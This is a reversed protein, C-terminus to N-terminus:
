ALERSTTIHREDYTAMCLHQQIVTRPTTHQLDFLYQAYKAMVTMGAHLHPGEPDSIAELHQQWVPHERYHVPFLTIPM